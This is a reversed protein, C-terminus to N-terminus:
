FHFKMENWGHSQTCNEDGKIANKYRFTWCQHSSQNWNSCWRSNWKKAQIHYLRLRNYWKTNWIEYWDTWKSFNLLSFCFCFLIQSLFPSLLANVAYFLKGTLSNKILYEQINSCQDKFVRCIATSHETPLGLQQLETSFTTEDTNFRAANVLLFRICSM